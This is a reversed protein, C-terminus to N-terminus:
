LVLVPGPTLPVQQLPTCTPMCWPITQVAHAGGEFTWSPLQGLGGM